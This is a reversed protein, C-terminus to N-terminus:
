WVGLAYAILMGYNQVSGRMDVIGCHRCFGKEYGYVTLTLHIIVEHPCWADDHEMIADPIMGHHGCTTADTIGHFLEQHGLVAKIYYGLSLVFSDDAWHKAILMGQMTKCQAGWILLVVTGAFGKKMDM